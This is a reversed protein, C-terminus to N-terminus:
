PEHQGLVEELTREGVDGQSNDYHRRYLNCEEITLPTDHYTSVGSTYCSPIACQFIQLIGRPRPVGCQDGPLWPQLPPRTVSADASLEM